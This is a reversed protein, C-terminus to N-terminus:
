YHYNHHHHHHHHHHYHYYGSPPIQRSSSSNLSVSSEINSLKAHNGTIRISNSTISGHTICSSHLYQLANIIDISIDLIEHLKMTIKNEVLLTHLSMPYYETIISNSITNSISNNTNCIGLIMVINPHRLRSLIDIEDHIFRVRKDTTTSSTTTTNSTTTDNNYRKCLVSLGKWQGISIDTYISSDDNSIGSSSTIVIDSEQIMMMM